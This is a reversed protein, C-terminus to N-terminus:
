EGVFGDVGFREAGEDLLLIGVGLHLGVLDVGTRQDQGAHRDSPAVRAGIPSSNALWVPLSTATLAPSERSVTM